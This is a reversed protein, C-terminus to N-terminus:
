TIWAYHIFAFCFITYLQRCELMFRPMKTQEESTQKAEYGDGRNVIIECVFSTSRKQFLDTSLNYRKFALYAFNMSTRVLCCILWYIYSNLCHFCQCLVIVVSKFIRLHQCFWSDDYALSWLHPLCCAFLCATPYLPYEIFCRSYQLLYSEKIQKLTNLLSM